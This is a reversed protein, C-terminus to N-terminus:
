LFYLFVDVLATSTLFFIRILLDCREIAYSLPKRIYRLCSFFIIYCWIISRLVNWCVLLPSMIFRKFIPESALEFLLQILLQLLLTWTVLWLYIRDRRITCVVRVQLLRKLGHLSKSCIWRKSHRTLATHQTIAFIHRRIVWTFEEEFSSRSLLIWISFSFTFIHHRLKFSWWIIINKLNLNEDRRLWTKILLSLEDFNM